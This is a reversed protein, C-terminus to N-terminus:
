FRKIILVFVLITSIIGLILYFLIILKSFGLFSFLLMLMLILILNFYKSKSNKTKVYLSFASSIFSSLMALFTVFLTFYYFLANKGAIEILPMEYNTINSSQLILIQVLIFVAFIIASLIVSWIIQRKTMKKSLFLLSGCILVVNLTVYPFINFYDWFNASEFTQTGIAGGIGSNSLFCLGVLHVVVIPFLFANIKVIGSLDFQLLFFSLIVIGISLWIGFLENIGALMVTGFAFYTFTTLVKFLLVFFSNHKENRVNEKEFVEIINNKNSNKFKLCIVLTSVLFILFSLLLLLYASSGFKAFYVFIENGTIFSAGVITCVYVCVFSFVKGM